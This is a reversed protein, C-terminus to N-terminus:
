YVLNSSITLSFHSATKVPVAGVVALLQSEPGRGKLLVLPFGDQCDPM